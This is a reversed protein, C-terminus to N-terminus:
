TRHSQVRILHLLKLIAVPHPAQGEVLEGVAEQFEHSCLRERLTRSSYPLGGARVLLLSKILYGAYAPKTQIAATELRWAEGLKM